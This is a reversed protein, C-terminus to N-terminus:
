DWGLSASAPLCIGTLILDAQDISNLIALAICHSGKKRLFLCVVFVSRAGKKIVIAWHKMYLCLLSQLWFVYFQKLDGHDTEVTIVLSGHYILLCLSQFGQSASWHFLIQRACVFESFAGLTIFFPSFSSFISCSRRALHMFCFLPCCLISLNMRSVHFHVLQRYSYFSCIFLVTIYIVNKYCFFTKDKRTLSKLSATIFCDPLLRWLYFLM